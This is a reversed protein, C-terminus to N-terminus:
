RDEVIKSIYDELEKISKASEIRALILEYAIGSRTEKFFSEEQSTLTRNLKTNLLKLIQNTANIDFPNNCSSYDKVFGEVPFAWPVGLDDEYDDYLGMGVTPIIQVQNLPTFNSALKYSENSHKIFCLNYTPGLGSNGAEVQLIPYGNVDITFNAELKETKTEKDNLLLIDYPQYSRDLITVRYKKNEKREIFLQKGNKDIWRGCWHDPISKRHFLKYFLKILYNM